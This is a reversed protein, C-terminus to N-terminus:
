NNHDSLDYWAWDMVEEPVFEDGSLWAQALQTAYRYADREVREMNMIDEPEGEFPADAIGMDHMMIWEDAREYEEEYAQTYCNEYGELSPYECMEDDLMFEEVIGEVSSHAKVVSNFRDLGWGGGSYSQGGSERYAGLFSANTGVSKFVKSFLGM